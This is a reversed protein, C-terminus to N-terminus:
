QLSQVLSRGATFNYEGLADSATSTKYVNHIRFKNAIAFTGCCFVYQLLKTVFFIEQCLFM